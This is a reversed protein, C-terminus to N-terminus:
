SGLRFRHGHDLLSAVAVRACSEKRVRPGHTQVTAGADVTRGWAPQPRLRDNAEDM